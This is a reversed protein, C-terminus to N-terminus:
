QNLFRKRYEKPSQGFKSHFLQSFHSPYKFGVEYSIETVTLYSKELLQAARRLRITQIFYVPTESTLKKIKRFLQSRSLGMNRSFSEVKFEPDSMHAEIIEVTRHLFNEDSPTVVIDAPKLRVEHSFRERLKRRSELLNGIRAKLIRSCLSRVMFDDVGAELAEAEKEEGGTIALIIIPIHSTVVDSKLNRCLELGDTGCMMVDLIIIDPTSKKAKKMGEIGDLAHLIRYQSKLEYVFYRLFDVDGTIILISDREDDSDDVIQMNSM